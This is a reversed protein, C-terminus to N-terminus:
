RGYGTEREKNEMVAGRGRMLCEMASVAVAAVHTLERLLNDYGGKQREAPGNDFITENIAQAYEGVEETLISLWVLQDHNEEGWLIIQRDREADILMVAARFEKRIETM